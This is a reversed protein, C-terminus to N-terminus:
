QLRIGAVPWGGPRKLIAASKGDTAVQLRLAAAAPGGAAASRERLLFGASGGREAALQLRRCTTRDLRKPWALAAACGAALVQELAWPMEREGADLLRLRNLNVGQLALGPAYPLYPPAVIFITGGEEERSLRALAPLLLALAGGPRDCLIESIGARPWGQGRLNADLAAFGTPVGGQRTQTFHGGRWLDQRQRLLAQVGPRAEADGQASLNDNGGAM